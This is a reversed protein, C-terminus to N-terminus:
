YNWGSTPKLNPNLSLENKPVPYLYMKDNWKYGGDLNMYARIYRKGQYDVLKIGEGSGLDFVNPYNAIVTPTVRCGYVSLPNELLKGARWRMIDDNRFGEAMLEVARERRIEYLVPTLTYGYDPWKPDTTISAITLPTVGARSRLINITAEVDSQTITGLEAKAEAYVLLIEAYRYLYWQTWCANAIWQNPDTHHFKEINYGTPSSGSIAPYDNVENAGNRYQYPLSRNDITQYLRRDRNVLETEMTEDGQYLPSVSFPLGDTCLYQEFMARTMGTSSENSQRTVNHMLRNQYYVRALITETGNSVDNLQTFMAYYNLPHGNDVPQCYPSADMVISYGGNDMVYKAANAAKTLLSTPSLDGTFTADNAYKARTGEYLCVRALQAYAVMNYLRGSQVATKAQMNSCAFELDEIIKGVVYNRPDQTKYILDIDDTTLDKDYWPYDGFRKVKSWYELARFFRVEGVYHNILTESGTVTQYRNLFYNANRIIRFNWNSTDTDPIVYAGSFFTNIQNNLRVDTGDDYTAGAGGLNNYFSNAYQMLDNTSKWFTADNISDTPTLDVVDCASVLVISAISIILLKFKM